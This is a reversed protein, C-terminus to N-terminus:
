PNGQAQLPQLLAARKGSTAVAVAVAVPTRGTGSSYAAECRM